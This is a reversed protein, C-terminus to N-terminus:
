RSLPDSLVADLLEAPGALLREEAIGRTTPDELAERLWAVAAPSLDEGRGALEVLRSLVVGAPLEGAAALLAAPSDGRLRVCIPAAGEHGCQRRAARRAQGGGAAELLAVLAAQRADGWEAPAVEAGVDLSKALRRAHRRGLSPAAAALASWAWPRDEAAADLLPQWGDQGPSLLTLAAWAEGALAGEDPSLLLPELASRLEDARDVPLWRQASTLARLAGRRASARDGALADHVALTLLLRDRESATGLAALGQLLLGLTAEDDDSLLALAAAGSARAEEPGLRASVGAFLRAAGHRHPESADLLPRARAAVEDVLEAPITAAMLGLAHTAAALEGGEGFRQMTLLDEAAVRREALPLAEVHYWWNQAVERRVWSAADTLAQRAALAARRRDPDTVPLSSVLPGLRRQARKRVREAPDTLRPWLLAVREAVTPKWAVLASPLEDLQGLPRRFGNHDWLWLGPEEGGAAAQVFLQEGQGAEAAARLAELGADDCPGACNLVVGYEGPQLRDLQARLWGQAAAAPEAVVAREFRGGGSRHYGPSTILQPTSTIPGGNVAYAYREHWDRRGDGDLDPVQAAPAWYRPAFEGCSTKEDDNGTSLFATAPDDLFIPAWDGSYCQDMVVVRRAVGVIDLLEAVEDSLCNHRGQLCLTPRAGDRDGHGTTYILLDDQEDLEARLQGVLASLGDLTGEQWLQAAGKPQRPSAVFTVYGEGELVSLALEVNQLHRPEDDGNVVLAYSGARAMQPALLLPLLVLWASRMRAGQPARDLSELRHFARHLADFLRIVLVAGWDRM